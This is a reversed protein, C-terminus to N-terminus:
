WTGGQQEHPLFVTLRRRKGIEDTMEVRGQNLRHTTTPPLLEASKVPLSHWWVRLVVGGKLASFEIMVQALLPLM